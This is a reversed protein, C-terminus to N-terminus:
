RRSPEWVEQRIGKFYKIWAMLAALNVMTFFLPLRLIILDSGTLWAIVALSYFLIQLFFFLVYVWSSLLFLSSLALLIMFVCVLWRILKHSILQVAFFGYQLPNMLHKFRMLTTLGRLITRVKRQLENKTDPLSRMTGRASPETVARFGKEVTKLVSFFDPAQGEPFPECLIRRQAYFCGSAGVISSVRSELNRLYIEYRGYAGEGGGGPISDEGSVCGINEHSFRSLLHRLSGKELMISADTFIVMDHKTENLGRNLASAKGKRHPQHFYKVGQSKYQQVIEETRDTSADSLVAIEMKSRPYDLSLTNLIKEEIIKEENYVPIIISVSPEHFDQDIDQIPKKKLISALMLLVPYGIYAYIIMIISFWFLLQM